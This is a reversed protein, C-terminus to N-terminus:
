VEKTNCFLKKKIINKNGIVVFDFDSEKDDKGEAFVVLCFLTLFMKRM